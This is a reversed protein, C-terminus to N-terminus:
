PRGWLGFKSMEILFHRRNCFVLVKSTFRPTKKLLQIKTFNQLCPQRDLILEIKGFYDVFEKM